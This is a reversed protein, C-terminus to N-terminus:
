SANDVEVVFIRMMEEGASEYQWVAGTQDPAVEWCVVGTSLTETIIDGRQPGYQMDSARVVFSVQRVVTQAGTSGVVRVMAVARTGRLTFTEGSRSYGIVHSAHDVLRDALWSAGDDIMSM